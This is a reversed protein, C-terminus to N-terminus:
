CGRHGCYSVHGPRALGPGTVLTLLSKLRAGAVIVRPGPGAAAEAAAVAGAVEGAVGAAVAGAAAADAGAAGLSRKVSRLDHPIKRTSCMSPRCASTLSKRTVSSSKKIQLPTKRRLM